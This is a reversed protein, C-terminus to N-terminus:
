GPSLRRRAVAGRWGSYFRFQALNDLLLRPERGGNSRGGDLAAVAAVASHAPDPEAPALAPPLLRFRDDRPADRALAEIWAEVELRASGTLSGEVGLFAPDIEVAATEGRRHLHVLWRRGAQTAERRRQYRPQYERVVEGTVVLQLSGPALALPGAETRLGLGRPTWEGSLARLPPTRAEDEPVLLVRVGEDALRQAVVRANEADAVRQLHFGGRRALLEAEFRGLPLARALRAPEAGDLDLIVLLRRAAAPPALPAPLSEAEAAAPLPASCYLCRPGARALPRGCSPCCAV